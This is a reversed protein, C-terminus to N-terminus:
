KNLVFVLCGLYFDICQAGRSSVVLLISGFRIRLGGLLLGGLRRWVRCWVDALYM